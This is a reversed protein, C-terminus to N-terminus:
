PKDAEVLWLLRKRARTAAVYQLRISEHKARTAGQRKLYGYLPDRIVGSGTVPGMILYGGQETLGEEWLLLSSHDSKTKRSVRPVIVTDFELGKAKHITMVQLANNTTARKQAYLSQLRQELAGVVSFVQNKEEDLISFFAEADLLAESNYLSMGGLATWLNLLCVRLPVRRFSALATALHPIITFLRRRAAESISLELTANERFLSLTHWLPLAPEYNAIENLDVLSLQSWPARLVSLWAINDGLHVIARTLALLDQIVPRALLHDLEIGEYDINAERLCALIATLHTRARVLLAMTGTPNEAQVRQIFDLIIAAENDPDVAEVVVTSKEKPSLAAISTNFAVAGTTMNNKAPFKTQFVTNIWDIIVPDSRFNATLTLSKLSILGINQQKARIFLGVEAQRFRYISQMPDGVLFLTRGEEPQWGQTLAELLRFQAVSTDQFEDVLIHQIKYDLSLALDSPNESQGLAKLASLTTETFDVEKAEQFVLTLEAMAVPLLTVLSEMLAWQSADYALPPCERLLQLQERFLPYNSLTELIDTMESKLQQYYAKDTANKACSPALFGQQYTLAKRFQHDERLLLESLGQWMALHNLDASPWETTLYRCEAILSTPNLLAVQEGAIKALPLLAKAEEPLVDVLERLRAAVVRRLGAELLVRPNETQHALGIYPLWQDRRALMDALLQEVRSWHNDLHMLLTEIAKTWVGGSELHQLARRAASQYHPKPDDTVRLALGCQSVIPMQRTLGLCFADITQIKLRSPQELLHWGLASDRKLVMQAIQWTKQEHLAKPPNPDKARELALLVREKMESAAKRTFTISLIEEPAEVAQALLMLLRQTLLATKGSGAPAQVLYSQTPNLAETRILHDATKNIM